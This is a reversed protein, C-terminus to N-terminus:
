ELLEIPEGDSMNGSMNFTTKGDSFTIKLNIRKVQNSSGPDCPMADATHNHTVRVTEGHYAYILPINAYYADMADNFVMRNISANNTIKSRNSIIKAERITEERLERIEHKPFDLEIQSSLYGASTAQNLLVSLSLIGIALIFGSLAFWQANRDNILRKM